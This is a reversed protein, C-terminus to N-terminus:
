DHQRIWFKTGLYEGPNFDIETYNMPVSIRDWGYLEKGVNTDHAAIIDVKNFLLNVMDARLHIGYDVFALDYGDSSSIGLNLIEELYHAYNEIKEYKKKQANQDLKILLDDCRYLIQKWNKYGKYKEKCTNYWDMHYPYASVEISCVFECKDLLYRTGEGEGFELVKKIEHKSFIKDFSPIYSQANNLDYAM